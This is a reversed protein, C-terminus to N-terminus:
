DFPLKEQGEYDDVSVFGDNDNSMKLWVCRPSTDGFRKTKTNKGASQIILDKKVAWSLFAKSSFNGKECMKDFANKIIIAIDEKHTNMMGKEICGWVEGQYEGTVNPKFKNMNISIESMIFEYARENESVEGQNKMFGIMENLDLYIGDNFIYDTALRDATLLVSLPIIQKEEKKAGIQDALAEIQTLYDQQMATIDDIGIDKIVDIFMRGAFGYNKSISKVVANGNEFISDDGMEFDLIRNIAGGRMTETALPREINTLVVNQWGTASNLALDKNSRDKGKGGCLMYIIDTFQDGYKDRTKSLDDIIMPLNNLINDRVELAVMTSVPDTIYKNEAPNAWISAAVMLAVTKGKGTEGWLNVIFPLVNLPKLLVSAFSAALYVNIEFRGTKRLGRVMDFWKDCSGFEQVSEFIDKFRSESDFEINMGYPMFEDKIWGFKSTSIKTEILDINFNELDSMFKVLARSTESTVSIGYDALSVIKNASAIIGKDVIIDKWYAGKQFAIKVKERGTEANILRQVPLIPHYCALMEGMMTFMRVGTHDAIWNGCYLENFSEPHDFQTYNDFSSQQRKVEAKQERKVERIAKKYAGVMNDFQMKVGLAKAKEQLTLLYRAQLIADQEDFVQTLVDDSLITQANLQTIDIDLM